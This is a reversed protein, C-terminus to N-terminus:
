LFWVGGWLLLALGLAPLDVEPQWLDVRRILWARLPYALLGVLAFGTVLGVEGKLRLGLLMAGIQLLFQGAMILAVSLSQGRAVLLNDYTMGPVSFLTGLALLGLMWGAAAYRDDYLFQVIPESFFSLATGIVFALLILGSRSRRVFRYLKKPTDRGVQAYSPFLVRYGLQKIAQDVMSALAFAVTYIGLFQVSVLRGIILRDSQNALFTLATSIFIWRGFRFIEAAATQDWAFRDAKGPLFRHGFLMELAATVLGGAVPAWITPSLYAWVIMVILGIVYASLEVLVLGQMNLRRNALAMKTSNFGAFLATLGAVPLAYALIPEGYFRAVPVAILASAVWLLGGRAVQITWATRLFAPEEGRENQIIAPNIGIDSFLNLGLIFLNILAMLGFLQPFLLRTLILNNAFRLIQRVGYGALTWFAGGLFRNAFDSFMGKSSTTVTETVM